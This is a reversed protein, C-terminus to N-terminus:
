DRLYLVGNVSKLDVHQHRIVTHELDAVEVISDQGVARQVEGCRCPM